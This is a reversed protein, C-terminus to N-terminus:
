TSSDYVQLDFSRKPFSYNHFLDLLTNKKDEFPYYVLQKDSVTVKFDNYFKTATLDIRGIVLFIIPTLMEEAEEEPLSANWIKEFPFDGRKSVPLKKQHRGIHAALKVLANANRTVLAPVFFRLRREPDEKKLQYWGMKMFGSLDGITKMNIGTSPSSVTVEFRWFPIYTTNKEEDTELVKIKQSYYNTGNLLWLRSCNKCFFIIDFDRSELDFGCNNCRHSLLKVRYSMDNENDSLAINAIGESEEIISKNIGDLIFTYNYEGASCVIRIVPFYIIFFKKGIISTKLYGYNGSPKKTSREALTEARKEAESESVNIPIIEGSESYLDSDYSEIALVEARFGLSQFPTIISGNAPFTYYCTMSEIEHEGGGSYCSYVMGKFYWFPKYLLKIEKIEKLEKRSDDKNAIIDKITTVIDSHKLTSPIIYKLTIGDTKIRLVSDCYSCKLTYTGEPYRAPAGCETCKITVLIPNQM